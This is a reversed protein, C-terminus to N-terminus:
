VARSSRRRRLVVVATLVAVGLGIPLLLVVMSQNAVPTSRGSAEWLLATVNRYDIEALVGPRQPPHTLRLYQYIDDPTQFRALIPPSGIAAPIEHPLPFGEDQQRGGHCGRAWCNQHDEVWVARWEDTLGQGRDGHCPMCNLYYVQRGFDAPAPSVPMVPTALRDITPTLEPTPQAGIPEAASWRFGALALVFAISIAAFLLPQSYRVARRNAPQLTQPSHQGCM